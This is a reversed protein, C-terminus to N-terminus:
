LAAHRAAAKANSGNKSSAANEPSWYRRGGAINM